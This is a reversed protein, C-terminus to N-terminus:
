KEINERLLKVLYEDSGEEVDIDKNIVNTIISDLEIDREITKDLLIRSFEGLINYFGSDFVVREPERSKFPLLPSNKNINHKLKGTNANYNM